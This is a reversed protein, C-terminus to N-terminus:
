VFIEPERRTGTFEVELEHKHWLYNEDDFYKAGVPCKKICACCKICIGTIKSVDDLDISGMPCVEACRKCGICAGNTKPTVKLISTFNGNQDQPRYYARYPKNGNVVVPPSEDATEIKDHIKAAFDGAKAMDQEDPRNAGLTMSFSHEGVFAGGAIVNFGKSELIDKFELLADDYHRNGYLVVAVATAGNGSITNLFKLLVNPVRGAYVPVGAIVLDDKDFSLIKKRAEPLTFDFNRVTVKEGHNQAIKEAIGTVIKETTGTASFYLTNIKKNM